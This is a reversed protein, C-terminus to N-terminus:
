KPWKAGWGEKFVDPPLPPPKESSGESVAKNETEIGYTEMARRIEAGFARLQRAVDDLIADYEVGTQPYIALNIPGAVLWLPTDGSTAWQDHNIGFWWDVNEGSFRFYRGYGYWQPTARSGADMWGEPIGRAHIADDILRM